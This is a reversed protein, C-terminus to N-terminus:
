AINDRNAQFNRFINEVLIVASDVIIGFDVAGVSLLNADEGQAVLIMVAFMLAFPINVGVIIASRLDGLFVWQIFFVLLCGFVLNHIVTHTTVGVLTGRDYFPSLKVGDPLSGNTNLDNIAAEIKPLIENTHQLRGMVIIATVVDDEHDRGLVGLRPSHSVSIKAVNKLLVPVGNTQKLVINEIDNVHYGKLLNEGGGDDIQGIGRINVSQQGIQIERGGVNINANNLASIIDPVSVNYTDLKQLDVEVSFQKRTGGLANIQVVGPVTMLRRAVIWDQVTRLNTLGFDKPGQVQYRYVEGVLASQQITPMVNNPLSVNQQLALAVQTYAFYYDVNYSFTVQVWTLGYFSTSRINTVKTVPYLATEM